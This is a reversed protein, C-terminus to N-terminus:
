PMAMRIPASLGVIHVRGPFPVLNRAVKGAEGAYVSEQKVGVVPVPAEPSIRYVDGWSFRDIM